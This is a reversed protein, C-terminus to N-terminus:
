YVGDSLVLRLVWDGNGQRKMPLDTQNWGNFDGVVVRLERMLFDPLEGTQQNAIVSKRDDRTVILDIEESSLVRLDINLEKAEELLRNIEYCGGEPHHPPYTYLIWGKM